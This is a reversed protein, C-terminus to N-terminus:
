LLASVTEALLDSSESGFHVELLDFVLVALLTMELFGVLHLPQMVEVHFLTSLFMVEQDSLIFLLDFLGIEFFM